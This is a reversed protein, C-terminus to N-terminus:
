PPSPFALRVASRPSFRGPYVMFALLQAPAGPSSLEGSFPCSVQILVLAQTKEINTRIRAAATQSQKPAFAALGGAITM